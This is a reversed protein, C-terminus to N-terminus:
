TAPLTTSNSINGSVFVVLVAAYAATSAFIEARKANTMLGVSLAFLATFAALMGLKAADNAVFYLATIPGVLLFAAILISIIATAASISKEYYRGVSRHSDLSIEEKFPWYRRLFISLYDTELSHLGVLDDPNDLFTKSLGGLVPRPNNFWERYTDLIRKSPQKLKAIESQLLLAEHYEKLKARIKVILDMRVRAKESGANYQRELTEWTMIADALDMDDSKADSRDLQDLKNELVLLESQLYLLNRAALEDFKRYISTEKDPDLAIWRAVQAFGEKQHFFDGSPDQARAM